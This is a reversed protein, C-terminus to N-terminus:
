WFCNRVSKDITLWLFYAISRQHNIWYHIYKTKIFYPTMRLNTIAWYDSKPFIPNHKPNEFVEWTSLKYLNLIDTTPFTFSSMPWKIFILNYLLSFINLWIFVVSFYFFFSFYVMVLTLISIKWINDVFQFLKLILTIHPLPMYM